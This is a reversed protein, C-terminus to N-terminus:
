DIIEWSRMNGNEDITVLLKYEDFVKIGVLIIFILGVVLAIKKEAKSLLAISRSLRKPFSILGFFLILVLGKLISFIKNHSGNKKNV